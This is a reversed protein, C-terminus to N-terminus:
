ARSFSRFIANVGRIIDLEGVQLGEASGHLRYALGSDHVQQEFAALRSMKRAKGAEPSYVKLL